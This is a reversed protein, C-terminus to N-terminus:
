FYKTLKLFEPLSINSLDGFPDSVVIICNNRNDRLKDYRSHVELVELKMYEPVEKKMQELVDLNLYEITLINVGSSKVDLLEFSPELAREKKTRVSIRFKDYRAFKKLVESLIM